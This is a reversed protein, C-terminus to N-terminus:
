PRFHPSIFRIFLSLMFALNVSMTRVMDKNEDLQAQQQKLKSLEQEYRDTPVYLDFM